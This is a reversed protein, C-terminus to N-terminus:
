RTAPIRGSAFFGLVTDQIHGDANDLSVSTGSPFLLGVPATTMWPQPCTDYASGDWVAGTGFELHISGNAPSKRYVIGLTPLFTSFCYSGDEQLCDQLPIFTFNEYLATYKDSAAPLPAVQKNSAVNEEMVPRIAEFYLRHGETNPHVGDPSLEEYSLGSLSYARIADIVDASYLRSLRRIEDTKGSYGQPNSELFTLIQCSPNLTKVSRLMSEYFLSFNEPNDNAGYCIIVLDYCGATQIQQRLATESQFYGTLSTTGGISYNDMTIQSGYAETLWSSLLAYWAHAADTDAGAGISDGLIAIRVPSKAQLKSYVSVPAAAAEAAPSAQLAPAAQGSLAATEPLITTEPLVTTEPLIAASAATDAAHAPICFLWFVAAPLLIRYILKKIM